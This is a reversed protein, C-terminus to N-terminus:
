FSVLRYGYISVLGEISFIVSHGENSLAPVLFVDFCLVAMSVAHSCSNFMCFSIEAFSPSGTNLTLCDAENIGCCWFEYGSSEQCSSPLACTDMPDASRMFNSKGPTKASCVTPPCTDQIHEHIPSDREKSVYRMSFVSVTKNSDMVVQM